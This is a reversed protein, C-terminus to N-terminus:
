LDLSYFLELVDECDYNDDLYYDCVEIVFFQGDKETVYVHNEHLSSNKKYVLDLGLFSKGVITKEYYDSKSVLEDWDSYCDDYHDLVKERNPFSYVGTHEATRVFPDMYEETNARDARSDYFIIGDGFNQYLAETQEYREWKGSGLELMKESDIFEFDDKLRYGIGFFENKYTEGEIKGYINTNLTHKEQPQTIEIEETTSTNKAPVVAFIVALAVWVVTVILAAIGCAKATKPAKKKMAFFLVFGVLPIIVSLIVLGINAKEPPKQQAVPPQPAYDSPMQGQTIGPNQAYTSSHVSTTTNDAFSAGCNGCFVAEDALATGCHSCYKM